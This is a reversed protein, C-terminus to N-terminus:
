DVNLILRPPTSSAVAAITKAAQPLPVDVVGGPADVGALEVAGTAEPEAPLEAAADTVGLM